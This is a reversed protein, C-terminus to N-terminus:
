RQSPSIGNFKTSETDHHYSKLYLRACEQSVSYALTERTKPIM